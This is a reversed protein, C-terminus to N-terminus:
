RWLPGYKADTLHHMRGAVFHETTFRPRRVGRSVRRPNGTGVCLVTRRDATSFPYRQTLIACPFRPSKGYAMGQMNRVKGAARKRVNRGLM